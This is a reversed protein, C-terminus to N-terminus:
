NKGPPAPHTKNGASCRGVRPASTVIKRDTGRYPGFHTKVSYYKSQIM